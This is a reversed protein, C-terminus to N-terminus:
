YGNNQPNLNPNMLLETEPIPLLKNTPRWAPKIPALVADARNHRNLDFWRHGHEALLEIRREQLVAELLEAQTQASTDPLGVRNRITNLDERAGSSNNQQARAEARILYQEALRFVVSYEAGSTQKYKNSYYWYNTGDTIEGIWHTRRQDGDEMGALLSEHLAVAPPPGSAFVLTTAETTYFGEMKTKLQLIAGPSSKLFEGEINPLSYLGTHNIVLSSQTEAKAWEGRYLYVRALLASVTFTNARIREAGIYDEGLMAKASELDSIVNEYVENVAMRSVQKNRDYNTTSIYPIEGFLNVLYFHTLGRIFLAESSLQEKTAQTLNQSAELGEIVANTLYILNYSSNWLKLVTADSALIQHNYFLEAPQGASGYYELEDAYLGMLFGMGYTNGTVMVEDRLKAYLTTVAATATIEDEFVNEHSIQGTPDQTDLFDDCGALLMLCISLCAILRKTQKRNKITTINM